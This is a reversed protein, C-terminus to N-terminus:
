GRLYNHQARLGHAQPHEPPNGRIDDEPEEDKDDEGPDSDDPDDSPGRRPPDGGPQGDRLPGGGGLCRGRPPSNGGHSSPEDPDKGSGPDNPDGPTNYETIAQDWAMQHLVAMGQHEIIYLIQIEDLCIHWAIQCEQLLDAGGQKQMLLHKKDSMLSMMKEKQCKVWAALGAPTTESTMLMLHKWYKVSKQLKNSDPMGPNVMTGKPGMIYGNTVFKM